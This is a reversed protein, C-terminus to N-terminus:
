KRPRGEEIPQEWGGGLARFLAVTDSVIAASSQSAADEAAFLTRQADLLDLFQLVGGRYLEQALAVSHRASDAAKALQESRARERALRGLAIEVDSLARLITGEYAALAQASRANQVNINSRVQGFDLIPWRMSPGISWFRSDGKPLDGLEQSQLGFSGTLSFRPFLDATAVGVRATAAALRREAMRVDPRRRLVDSPIGADLAEPAAPIPSATLLQADLTGPMSGILVELRRVAVHEASELDPVRAATSSVETDAKTVDLDSAIGAGAQERVVALTAQESDLTRRALDLRSQVGRLQTYGDAVEAIVAVLADAVGFEAAEIDAGAAEVARRNRGFLDIEWTADVGVQWLNIQQGPAVAGPLGGNSGGGLGDLGSLFGNESFRSNSFSGSLDAQPFLAAVVVGRQARSERLRAAAIRVDTNAATARTVLDDLVPDNFSRWWAGDVSPSAATRVGTGRSGASWADPMPPAPPHYDPGVTCGCLVFLPLLM